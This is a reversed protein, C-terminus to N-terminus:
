PVLQLRKKEVVCRFGINHRRAFPAEGSQSQATAQSELYTDFAGGRISKLQEANADWGTKGTWKVFDDDVWEWVNGIMQCIEHSSDGSYDTVSVAHGVGSQWLNAQSPSVAEGWPYKRQQSAVAVPATPSCAAKVWEPGSPLRRGAWRAYAQAEFWCVGVVPHEAEGKAYQGNRWFRPGYHGTTDLFQSRAELSEACWFEPNEYGGDDVFRQFQENTVAFRDIFCDEVDASLGVAAGLEVENKTPTTMWVKGAQVPAMNEKLKSVAAQKQEQKVKSQLEPRLVLAWRGDRLFGQILESATKPAHATASKRPTPTPACPAPQEQSADQAMPQTSKRRRRAQWYRGCWGRVVMLCCAGSALCVFLNSSFWGSAFCILSLGGIMAETRVTKELRYFWRM